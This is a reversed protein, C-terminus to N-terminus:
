PNRGQSLYKELNESDEEQSQESESDFRVFTEPNWIEFHSIAGSIVVEAEVSAYEILHRPLMIRGQSDLEVEAAAAARRRMFRRTEKKHRPIALLVEDEYGEWESLPHVEIEGDYGKTLVLTRQNAADLARRFQAPIAVRGKHDVSYRFQGRFRMEAGRIVM